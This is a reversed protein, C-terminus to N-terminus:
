DPWWPDGSADADCVSRELTCDGVGSAIASSICSACAELDERCTDDCGNHACSVLAGYTRITGANTKAFCADACASSSDDTCELLCGELESCTLLKQDGPVVCWCGHRADATAIVCSFNMTGSCLDACAFETLEGTAPDCSRLTDQDACRDHEAVECIEVGTSEADDDTDDDSTDDGTDGSTGTGEASEASQLEKFWACGTALAIVVLLGASRQM